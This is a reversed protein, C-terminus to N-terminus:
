KKPTTNRAPVVEEIVAGVTANPMQIQLLAALTPAIDTMYVQRYLKGKKIGKGYWLLPIHADYPNWLGHTTGKTGGDFWNPKFVFQIDGSRKQSFGNQVMTKVMAPLPFAGVTPLEFAHSVGDYQLLKQIIYQNLKARDGNWQQLVTQNLYLQYNMSYEIANTLDFDKKIAENLQRAIVADDVLGGPLKHEALFGPVHAAGHDATLFVVFQGKGVSADLYALFDALDKDLRLYMDELEISNPGFTHGAYDTASFSVALMDTFPGKGLSEAKVAAKAMEFTYTNAGPTYKFSEYKNKTITETAHDFTNDEGPLAGEFEKADATSQLYTNIPYLTKWGQALLADPRKKANFDNVWTPLANMYFTSTIFGGSAADFWYAGNASHGGPLISGRDKLAIAITKSRFNTSLRMEDSITNSWLNRPSQKGANSSSGVTQVTTDETCYVSRRLSRDYWNNGVIGNLSPVSGTYISAHGAATYTPTYPIFTNECSFGDNLLRNFGGAVYRDHYRYLYDWRMQDVTIGVVLKPKSTQASATLTFACLLTLFLNRM